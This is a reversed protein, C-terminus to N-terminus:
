FDEAEEIRKQKLNVFALGAALVLCTAFISGAIAYRLYPTVQLDRQFADVGVLREPSQWWSASLEGIMELTTVLLDDNPDDLLEDEFLLNRYVNEFALKPLVFDVATRLKRPKEGVQVTVALNVFPLGNTDADWTASYLVHVFGDQAKCPESSVPVQTHELIAPLETELIEKIEQTASMNESGNAHQVEVSLSDEDICLARRGLENLNITHAIVIPSLTFFLSILVRFLIM